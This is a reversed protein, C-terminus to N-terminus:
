MSKEKKKKIIIIIFIIALIVSVVFVIAKVLMSYNTGINITTIANDMKIMKDGDTTYLDVLKVETKGSTIKNISKLKIEFLEENEDEIEGFNIIIFHGEEKDNEKNNYIISWGKEATMDSSTVVEWDNKDYVIKGEFSNKGKLDKARVKITIEEGSHIENKSPKLEVGARTISPILFIILSFITIIFIKIKRRM